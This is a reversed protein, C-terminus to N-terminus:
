RYYRRVLDERVQRGAPIDDENRFIPVPEENVVEEILPIRHLIMNHHAVCTQVILCAEAPAYHLVRDRRLCRWRAKLVGFCREICNRSSCHETTYQQEPTGEEARLIPTLLWPEAAYGSYGADTTSRDLADVKHKVLRSLFLLGCNSRVRICLFSDEGFGIEQIGEVGTSTEM